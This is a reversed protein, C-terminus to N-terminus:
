FGFSANLRVGGVTPTVDVARVIPVDSWLAAVFAGGIALAAGGYKLGSSREKFPLFPQFQGAYVTREGRAVIALTGAAAVVAGDAVGSGYADATFECSRLFNPYCIFLTKLDVVASIFAPSTLFTATENALLTDSVVDPQTPQVPQEPDVLLMAAGAGVMALGIALRIKSKRKGVVEPQRAMAEAVREASARIGEVRESAVLHQATALSPTGVLAVLMVPILIRM